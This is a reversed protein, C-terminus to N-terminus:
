LDTEETIAKAQLLQHHTVQEAQRRVLELQQDEVVLGVM